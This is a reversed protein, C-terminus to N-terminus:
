LTPRAYLLKSNEATFGGGPECVGGGEGACSGDSGCEEGQCLGAETENLEMGLETLFLKHTNEICVNWNKVDDEGRLGLYPFHHIFKGFLFECDEQYKRTDLIHNHWFEDISKTPVLVEKPFKDILKLYGRYQQEVKNIRDITWGQGHENHALKYRIPGLDLNALRNDFNTQQM